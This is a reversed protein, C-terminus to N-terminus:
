SEKIVSLLDNGTKDAYFKLMKISPIKESREQILNIFDINNAISNYYLLEVIAPATKNQWLCANQYKVGTFDDFNRANIEPIVEKLDKLIKKVDITLNTKENM